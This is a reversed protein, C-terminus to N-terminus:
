FLSAKIPVPITLEIFIGMSRARATPRVLPESQNIATPRKKERQDNIAIPVRARKAAVATITSAM